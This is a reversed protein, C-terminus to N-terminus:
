RARRSRKARGAGSAESSGYAADAASAASADDVAAVLEAAALRLGEALVDPDPVVDADVTLGVGLSDLYSIVGVIVAINGVGCIYPYLDTLRAGLLYLPDRSGPMNSVCLNM